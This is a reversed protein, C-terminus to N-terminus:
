GTLGPHQAVLATWCFELDPWAFLHIGHEQSSAAGPKYPAGLICQKPYEVVALVYPSQKIVPYRHLLDLFEDNVQTKRLQLLKAEEAISEVLTIYAELDMQPTNSDGLSQLYRAVALHNDLQQDTHQRTEAM